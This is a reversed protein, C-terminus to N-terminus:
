AQKEDSPFEIVRDVQYDKMGRAHTFIMLEGLLGLALLQLGLVVLLSSLFLAPRDALAEHFFLRDVVLYTVLLTGVVLMSAGVMGFFRLPKKTFRVLFFVAFVDLIRHVYERTRYGGEFRDQQSQRVDIELVRFGQRDALAPLLRHQDGYLSVEELVRRKMARASCGLDHLNLRTMWNVLGHFAARRVAEFASGARPQRKGVIVDASELAAVLKPIEDGDIQFYAPLTLIIEGTAHEFGAMLATSEGFSRSLYLVTIREGARMLKELGAAVDPHPGDLVYIFECDLGAKDIGRRYEAHLGTVEAHRSGVPIIASLRVRVNYQLM